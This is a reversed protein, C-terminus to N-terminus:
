RSSARGTRRSCSRTSTPPSGTSAWPAPDREYGGMVLGGSEGRFYVLLSPDRMTPLDLPLGSPRTVLYEHALPVVPRQRRCPRRDRRTSGERMSSSTRRSRARTPSSAPSGGASSTSAPSARTRTSRPATAGPVRPWRSRSSARTSTATPRASVGRRARRRDVDAPLAAAGGRCVRARAAPRIDEGLRGPAVAGGHAGAVLCPAALRGRALRDSGSRESSRRYLEVSRM